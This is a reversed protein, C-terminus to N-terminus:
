IVQCVVMSIPLSIMNSAYLEQCVEGGGKRSGVCAARSKRFFIACLVGFGWDQQVGWHFVVWEVEKAPPYGRESGGISISKKQSFLMLFFLLVREGAEGKSIFGLGLM